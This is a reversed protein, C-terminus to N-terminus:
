LNSSAVAMIISEKEEKNYSTWDEIEAFKEDKDIYSTIDQIGEKLISAIKSKKGTFYKEISCNSILEQIVGEIYIREVNPQVLNEITRIGANIVKYEQIISFLCNRVFSLREPIDLAKPVIIKSTTLIEFEEDNSDIITYYVYSPTTRIGICIM